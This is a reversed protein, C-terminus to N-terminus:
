KTIMDEIDMEMENMDKFILNLAIKKAETYFLPHDKDAQTEKLTRKREAREDMSRSQSTLQKFINHRAQKWIDKKQDDTFVVIGGYDVLSHFISNGYDNYYGNKKYFDYANLVNQKTMKAIEEESPKTKEELLLTSFHTKVAQIRSESHLYTRIATVFVSLSLIFIKEIPIIEGMALKHIALGIEELRIGAFSRLIETHLENVIFTLDEKSATKGLSIFAKTVAIKITNRLALHNADKALIGKLGEQENRAMPAPLTENHILALQDNTNQEM